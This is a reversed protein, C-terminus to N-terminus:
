KRMKCDGLAWQGGSDWQGEVQDCEFTWSLHFVHFSEKWLPLPRRGLHSISRVRVGQFTLDSSPLHRFLFHFLTLCFLSYINFLSIRLVTWIFLHFTLLNSPVDIPIFPDDDSHFQCIFDSNSKISEWKWEDSYYGSMREHADGLDLCCHSSNMTTLFPPFWWHLMSFCYIRRSDPWNGDIALCCCGWFQFFLRSLMARDIM